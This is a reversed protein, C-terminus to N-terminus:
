YKKGTTKGSPPRIAALKDSILDKINEDRLAKKILQSNLEKNILHVTLAIERFFAMIKTDNAFWVRRTMLQLSLAHLPVKRRTPSLM